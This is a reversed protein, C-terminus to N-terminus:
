ISHGASGVSNTSDYERMNGSQIRVNKICEQMCMVNSDAREIYWCLQCSEAAGHPKGNKFPKSLFLLRSVHDSPSYTFPDFMLLIRSLFAIRYGAAEACRKSKGLPEYLEM